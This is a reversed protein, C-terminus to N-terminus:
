FSPAGIDKGLNLTYRWSVSDGSKLQCKNYGTSPWGGNVSYLWGSGSGLDGESLGNITSVYAGRANFDIGCSELATKVTAGPKLELKKASLIVGKNSLGSVATPDAAYATKCDIAITVNLTQPATESPKDPTAPNSNSNGSSSNSGSGSSSGSKATGSGTAGSGSKSTSSKATADKKPKVRSNASGLQQDKATEPDSTSPASQNEANASTGAPNQTTAVSPTTLASATVSADTSRTPQPVTDLDGATNRTCGGLALTLAILVTVVTVPLPLKGARLAPFSNVM